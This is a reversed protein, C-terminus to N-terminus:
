RLRTMNADVLEVGPHRLDVTPTGTPMWVTDDSEKPGSERVEVLVHGTMLLATGAGRGLL